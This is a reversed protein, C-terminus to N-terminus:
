RACRHPIAREFGSKRGVHLSLSEVNSDDSYKGEENRAVFFISKQGGPESKVCKEFYQRLFERGDPTPPFVKEMRTGAFASYHIDILDQLDDVTAPETIKSM